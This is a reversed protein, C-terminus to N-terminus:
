SGSACPTDPTDFEARPKSLFMEVVRWPKEGPIRMVSSCEGHVMAWSGLASEITEERVLGRLEAPPLGRPEEALHEHTTLILAVRVCPDGYLREVSAHGCPIGSTSAVRKERAEVLSLGHQGVLFDIDGILVNVESEVTSIDLPDHGVRQQLDEFTIREFEGEWIDLFPPCFQRRIIESVAEGPTLCEIREGNRTLIIYM